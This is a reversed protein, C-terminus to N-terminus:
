LHDPEYLPDLLHVPKVGDVVLGYSVHDFTRFIMVHGIYEEPLQVKADKPHFFKKGSEPSYDFNDNVQEGPHFISYVQGNEVGDAAGHSLALVQDRGAVMWGSPDITDTFAVVRMGAPVQKPPHPVYQADYPKDDLPLVLDGPRVEIDSALLLASSPNAAKTVRVTGIQLGEYGIFNVKGALSSEQPGHRWMLDGRIEHDRSPEDTSDRYFRQPEGNRPVIEYYRGLVRVIALQQGPAADLGRVYVLQGPTARLHAEEAGVVHPANKFQDIDIVRTRKLFKDIRELAIPKVADELQEVRAHPGGSNSLRPGGDLYALNIVDGPFILHPNKIQGNAQWIEPWQWPKKLFKNSISWLTDGRRVVYTDPHGPKLEVTAAYAVLTLALGAFIAPLKKLM